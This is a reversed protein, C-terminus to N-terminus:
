LQWGKVALRVACAAVFLFPVFPLRFSGTRCASRGGAAAAIALLAFVALALLCALLVALVFPLFGFFAALLIMYKIDGRGLGKGSIAAALPGPLLKPPLLLSGLALVSVLRGAFDAYSGAFLLGLLPVLALLLAPNGPIRRWLLDTCCAFLSYLLFIVQFLRM